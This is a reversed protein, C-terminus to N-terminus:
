NQWEGVGCRLCHHGRVHVISKVADNKEDKAQWDVDKSSFQIPHLLSIDRPFPKLPLREIRQLVRGVLRQLAPNPKNAKSVLVVASYGQSLQQDIEYFMM